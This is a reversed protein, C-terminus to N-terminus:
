CFFFEINFLYHYLQQNSNLTDSKGMRNKRKRQVAAPKLNLVVKFKWLLNSEPTGALCPTKVYDSIQFGQRYWETSLSTRNINKSLLESKVLIINQKNTDSIKVKEKKM